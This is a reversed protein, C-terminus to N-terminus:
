DLEESGVGAGRTSSSTHSWDGSGQPPRKVVKRFFLSLMHSEAPAGRQRRHFESWRPSCTGREDSGGIPRHEEPVLEAGGIM